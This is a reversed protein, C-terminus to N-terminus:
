RKRVAGNFHARAVRPHKWCYRHAICGASTDDRQICRCDIIGPCAVVDRLGDPTEERFVVASDSSGSERAERNNMEDNSRATARIRGGRLLDYLKDPNRTCRTGASVYLRTVPVGASIPVRM